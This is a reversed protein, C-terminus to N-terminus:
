IVVADQEANKGYKRLFPEPKIKDDIQPNDILNRSKRSNRGNNQRDKLM